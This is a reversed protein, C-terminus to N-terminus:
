LPCPILENVFILVHQNPAFHFHTNPFPGRSKQHPNKLLIKLLLTLFSVKDKLITLVFNPLIVMLMLPLLPHEYNDWLANNQYEWGYEITSLM